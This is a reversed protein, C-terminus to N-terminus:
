SIYHYELRFHNLPILQHLIEDSNEYNDVPENIAGSYLTKKEPDSSYILDLFPVTKFGKLSVEESEDYNRIDISIFDKRDKFEIFNEATILSCAVSYNNKCEADQFRADPLFQTEEM